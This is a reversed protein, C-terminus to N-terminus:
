CGEDDSEVKNQLATELEKAANELERKVKMAKILKFWSAKPDSGLWIRIMETASTIADQNKKENQIKSDDVKLQQAIPEWATSIDNIPRYIKEKSGESYTIM